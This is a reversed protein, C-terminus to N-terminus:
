KIVFTEWGDYAGNCKKAQRRLELTLRSIAALDIKDNRSIQLKYSFNSGTVNEKAEIKFSNKTVYEIFCNRDTETGFYIWHDTKRAKDLKDGAKELGLLVKQNQMFEFTEENPYLFSLYADWNKDEKINVYPQYQSFRAAYLKLLAQRLGNTDKVYYYDLRECQYTFTGVLMNEVSRNIKAQISDFILYLNAFESNSPMGDTPCDSFKVGTILVFPMKKVPAITKVSMNLLTSGVGKEYEALYTDWEEKQAVAFLPLLVILIFLAHRFRTM